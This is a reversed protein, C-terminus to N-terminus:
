ISAYPGTYAPQAQQKKGLFEVYIKSYHEITKQPYVQPHGNGQLLRNLHTVGMNYAALYLDKDFGFKARLMSLYAAGLRINAAPDRLSDVGKWRIRAKKAIWEATDPKLQMLGIEGHSGVVSPDFRSENEIVALLLLPDFGHRLASDIIARAVQKSKKPTAGKLARASYETVFQNVQEVKGFRSATQGVSGPGM